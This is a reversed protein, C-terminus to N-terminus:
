LVNPRVFIKFNPYTEMYVGNHGGSCHIFVRGGSSDKGVYIGIHNYSGTAINKPETLLGLDGPKLESASIRKSNYYQNGSGHVFDIGARGYAWTVFGSCDLRSPYDVDPSAKSGLNYTTKGILTVAAAVIARRSEDTVTLDLDNLIKAIEEPSMLVAGSGGGSGGGSGSVGIIDMVNRGMQMARETQYTRFDLEYGDVEERGRNLQYLQTAIYDLSKLDIDYVLTITCKTYTETSGDSKKRTHTTIPGINADVFEWTVIQEDEEIKIKSDVNYARAKALQKFYELEYLYKDNRINAEYDPFIAGIINKVLSSWYDTITDWAAGILNAVNGFLGNGSQGITDAVSSDVYVNAYKVGANLAAQHSSKFVDIRNGKIAGGTDEATFWGFGEIYVKTGLPIRNKDVAITRGETATTGSATIGNAYSGCCISCPCYFTLKFKGIATVNESEEETLTEEPNYTVGGDVATADDEQRVCYMSPLCYFYEPAIDPERIKLRYTVVDAPATYQHKRTAFDLEIEKTAEEIRTDFAKETLSAMKSTAEIFYSMQNIAFKGEYDEKEGDTVMVIEGNEDVSGFMLTPIMLFTMSFIMFLGVISFLLYYFTKRITGNKVADVAAGIYNGAATKAGIKAIDKLNKATNGANAASNQLDDSLSSNQNEDNM